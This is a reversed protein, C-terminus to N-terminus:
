FNAPGRGCSSELKGAERSFCRERSTKRKWATSLATRNSESNFYFHASAGFGCGPVVFGIVDDDRLLEVEADAFDGLQAMKGGVNQAEPFGLEGLDFGYLAAGSLAHVAFFVDLVDQTDFREEVVFAEGNGSRALM